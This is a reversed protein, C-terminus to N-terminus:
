EKKQRRREKKKENVNVQRAIKLFAVTKGWELWDKCLVATTRLLALSDAEEGHSKSPTFGLLHTHLNVFSFSKPRSTISFNLKKRSKFTEYSSKQKLIHPCINRTLNKSTGNPTIEIEQIQKGEVAQL